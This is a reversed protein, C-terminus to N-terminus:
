VKDEIAWRTFGSKQKINHLFLAGCQACVLYSLNGLNKFPRSLHNNYLAVSLDAWSVPLEAKFPTESFM